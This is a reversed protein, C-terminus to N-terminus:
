IQGLLISSQGLAELVYSITSSKYDCSQLCCLSNQEVSLSPCCLGEVTKLVCEGGYRSHHLLVLDVLDPDEHPGGKDGGPLLIDDPDRTMEGGTFVAAARLPKALAQEVHEARDDVATSLM